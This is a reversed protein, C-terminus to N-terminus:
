VGCSFPILGAHLLLTQRHSQASELHKPLFARSRNCIRCIVISGLLLNAKAGRDYVVCLTTWANVGIVGIADFCGFVGELVGTTDGAFDGDLDGEGGIDLDDDGGIDLDDDGALDGEGNCALNGAFDGIFDDGTFVEDFGLCVGTAGAGM